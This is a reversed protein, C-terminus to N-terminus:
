KRLKGKAPRLQGHFWASPGKGDYNFGQILIERDNKVWVKGRLDHACQYLSGLSKDGNTSTITLFFLTTVVATILNLAFM